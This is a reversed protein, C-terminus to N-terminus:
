NLNDGKRSMTHAYVTVTFELSMYLKGESKYGGEKSSHTTKPM